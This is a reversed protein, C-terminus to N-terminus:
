FSAATGYAAAKCSAYMLRHGDKSSLGMCFGGTQLLLVCAGVWLSPMSSCRLLVLSLASASPEVCLHFAQHHAVQCWCSQALVVAARSAEGGSVLLVAWANCMLPAVRHALLSSISHM